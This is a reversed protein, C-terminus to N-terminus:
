SRKLSVPQGIEASEYCALAVRLAEYGDRWTVSPERNERISAVFEDIMAKKSQALHILQPERLLIGAARQGIAEDPRM